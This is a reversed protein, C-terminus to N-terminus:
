RKIVPILYSIGYRIEAGFKSNEYTRGFGPIFLNEFNEPQTEGLRWKLQFTISLYLNNLVETKVGTVAELWHASLGSFEQNVWRIDEGFVPHSMAISYSLLEQNFTSIGYRLGGFIMNNLNGWNNHANYDFGGKFYTGAGQSTIQDDYTTKQEIGMEVALYFRKYVRIDGMIEFGRYDNDILSRIPKYLDIGARIGFKEVRKPLSDAQAPASEQAYATSSFVWVSIIFIYIRIM